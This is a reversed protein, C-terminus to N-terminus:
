PAIPLRIRMATGAQPSTEFDITGGMAEISQRAIALGLGAGSTKTSFSPEFIHDHLDEPIGRGTDAVISSIMGEAETANISVIGENEDRLAELANKILNIYVRRLENRDANVVLQEEDFDLNFTVHAPAEERLLAHAESIVPGLEIREIQRAPLRAFSAFENAIHALSDIQDVLTTTIREFLQRFKADKNGSGVFARRLHQLSLKMPTLPNKIEHAVQRAMERWALQRQQQALQQRSEVLQGQMENFTQVLEGVEDRTQVPLLREFRGKAVAQLGKQLRAIPQSLANALLSATFLVLIGLALLAGFLYALTRAREEEIREAEPLTPVSLVYIPQGSEDLIARYGATYTFDGLRHEVFTFRDKDLAIAEYAKAPLRTDMIRDAILQERSAAILNIGRYLNLDLGVRAALSDISMRELVSSSLEGPQAESALTEEVRQLHQRLWSQVAKENEETVVQVGAIGVPIVAVIGLLLFANLVKDRFRIRKAPILGARWRLILGALCVILGVIFGGGIMRLLYYLHDFAGITATRVAVVNGNQRRYYTRYTRGNIDERLWVAQLEALRADAVPDLQYRNFGRGVSSELLGDRYSALSLNAYLDRYGSSLLIRLLPTNAEELVIHPQAQVLIWGRVLSSAVSMPAGLVGLGAYEYRNAGPSYPEVYAYVSQSSESESRLQDFRQRVVEDTIAEAPAGTSYILESEPNLFAISADYSGFSSLLSGSLLNTAISDLGTGDDLLGSMWDLRLAEEIVERVAFSVGPDYGTDFSTAAYEIRERQRDALSRYFLPYVLLCIALTVPFVTRVSLWSLRHRQLRRAAVAYSVLLYLLSIPWPCWGLQDAGIATVVALLVVPWAAFAPPRVEVEGLAIRLLGSSALLLAFAALVLASFVVLEMSSPILTSRGIYNLTSDQVSTRVVLALCCTLAVQILIALSMRVNWRTRNVVRPTADSTIRTAYEMVAAAILIACLVTLLMEGASKMLGMGLTSALHVPDFLPSLPAKGTQFRAPVDMALFGFRAAVVAICMMLLRQSSVVRRRWQWMGWLLWVILLTAWVALANNHAQATAEVLGASTPPVIAFAGLTDGALSTLVPTGEQIGSYSVQIHLGTSRSWSDHIAYDQLVENRVPTRASLLQTLRVAGVVSMGSRVPHWVVLAERWDADRAISWQVRDADAGIGAVLPISTGRWAITRMSRDYCALSTRVPLERATIHRILLPDPEGSANELALIVVSDTALERASQLMSQQLTAFAEHVYDEAASVASSQREAANRSVKGVQWSRAAWTLLFAGTLVVVVIVFYHKRWLM